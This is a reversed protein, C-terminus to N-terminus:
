ELVRMVITKREMTCVACKVEPLMEISDFYYVAGDHEVSDKLEAAEDVMSPMDMFFGQGICKGFAEKRVWIDYFGEIGWLEVYHREEETYYRRSIAEWDRDTEVEQLDLGCPRSSFLCMWMMGSHSISFSVPVDVFFPKGKETRCIEIESFDYPM